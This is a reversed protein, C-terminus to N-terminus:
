RRRIASTTTFCRRPSCRSVRSCFRPSVPRGASTIAIAGLVETAIVLPLLASPVGAAQMYGGTAAFAGIKGVGSLLFLTALLVRGALEVIDKSATLVQSARLAPNETKLVTDHNRM